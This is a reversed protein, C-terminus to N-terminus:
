GYRIKWIERIEQSRSIIHKFLGLSNKIVYDVASVLRKEEEEGLM